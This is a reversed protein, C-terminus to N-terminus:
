SWPAQARLNNVANVLTRWGDENWTLHIWEVRGALRELIWESGMRGDVGRDELKRNGEQKEVLVKYVKREEGVGAWRM